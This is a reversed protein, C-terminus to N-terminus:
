GRGAVSREPAGDCRGVSDSTMSARGRQGDVRAPRRRVSAACWRAVAECRPRGAHRDLPDANRRWPATSCSRVTASREGVRRWRRRPRAEGPRRGPDARRRHGRRASAAVLAQPRASTAGTRRRSTGSWWACRVRGAGPLDRAGGLRGPRGPDRDVVRAGSSTAAPTSRTRSRTTPSRSSPWCGGTTTPRARLRLRARGAGRGPAALRRGRRRRAPTTSTPSSPPSTTGPCCTATSSSSRASPTTAWRTRSTASRAPRHRAARGRHRLHPPGRVARRRRPRARVPGRPVVHRARRARRRRRRARSVPARPVARRGGRAPAEAPARDAPADPHRLRRRRHGGRAAHDPPCPLAPVVPM